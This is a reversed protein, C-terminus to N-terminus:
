PLRESPLDRSSKLFPPKLDAFSAPAYMTGIVTTPVCESIGARRPVDHHDAHSLLVIRLTGAGPSRTFIMMWGAIGVCSRETSSIASCVRAAIPEASYLSVLVELYLSGHQSVIRIDGDEM